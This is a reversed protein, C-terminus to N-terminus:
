NDKIKLIAIFCKIYRKLKDLKQREIQTIDIGVLYKAIMGDTIEGTPGILMSIQVLVSTFMRIDMQYMMASKLYPSDLPLNLGEESQLFNIFRALKEQLAALKTTM